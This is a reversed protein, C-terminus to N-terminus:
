SGLEALAQQAPKYGRDAARQYFTIATVLDKKVGLGRQYVLGLRYHARMHGRQAASKYLKVARDLDRQVGHGQEYMQGLNTQAFPM